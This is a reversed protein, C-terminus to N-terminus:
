FKYIYQIQATHEVPNDVIKNDYDDWSTYTGCHFKENKYYLDPRVEHRRDECYRNYIDGGWAQGYGITLFHKKNESAFGKTIGLYHKNTVTLKDTNVGNDWNFDIKIDNNIIAYGGVNAKPDKPTYFRSVDPNFKLNNRKDLDTYGYAKEYIPKEDLTVGGHTLQLTTLCVGLLKLMCM